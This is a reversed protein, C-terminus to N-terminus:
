GVLQAVDAPLESLCVLGDFWLVLWADQVSVNEVFTGDREEIRANTITKAVYNCDMQVIFGMEEAEIARAAGETFYQNM